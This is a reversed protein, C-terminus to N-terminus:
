FCWCFITSSMFFWWTSIKSIFFVIVLIYTRFSSFEQFFVFPSFSQLMLNPFSEKSIVGFVFVVSFCIFQVVDFNCVEWWLVCCLLFDVYLHSFINVFRIDLLLNIYLVGVVWCCFFGLRNYFLRLVQVSMRWFPYLYSVFVHFSVWIRLM